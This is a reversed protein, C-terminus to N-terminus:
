LIGQVRNVLFKDGQDFMQIFSLCEDYEQHLPEYSLKYNDIRRRFDEIATERDVDVYDPSSLKVEQILFYYSTMIACLNARRSQLDPPGRNLDWGLSVKWDHDLWWNFWSPLLAADSEVKFCNVVQPTDFVQVVVVVVVVFHKLM